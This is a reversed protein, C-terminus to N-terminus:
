PQQGEVTHALWAADRAAMAQDLEAETDEDPNTRHHELAIQAIRNAERLQKTM